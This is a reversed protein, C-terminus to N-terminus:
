TVTAEALAYLDTCLQPIERVLGIHGQNRLLVFRAHPIVEATDSGLAGALGTGVAGVRGMVAMAAAAATGALAALWCASVLARTGALLIGLTTM